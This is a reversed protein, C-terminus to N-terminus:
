PVDRVFRIIYSLNNQCANNSHENTAHVLKYQESGPELSEEFTGVIDVGNGYVRIDAEPEGNERTTIDFSCHFSQEGLPQGSSSAEFFGFREEGNERYSILVQEPSELLIVEGGSRISGSQSPKGWLLLEYQYAPLGPVSSDQRLSDSVKLADRFSQSPEDPNLGFLGYYPAEHDGLKGFYRYWMENELYTEIEEPSQAYYAFHYESLDRDIRGFDWEGDPVPTSLMTTAVTVAAVATVAYAKLQRRLTHKRPTSPGPANDPEASMAESSFLREGAPPTWEAPPRPFEEPLAAYEDLYGM